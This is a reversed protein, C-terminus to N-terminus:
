RAQVIHGVAPVPAGPDQPLLSVHEARPPDCCFLAVAAPFNECAGATNSPIHDPPVPSVPYECPLCDSATKMVPFASSVDSDLQEM